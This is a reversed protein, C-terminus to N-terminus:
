LIRFYHESTHLDTTITYKLYILRDFINTNFLLPWVRYLIFNTNTINKHCVDIFSKVDQLTDDIMNRIFAHSLCLFPTFATLFM